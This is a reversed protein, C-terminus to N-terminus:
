LYDDCLRVFKDALWYIPYICLGLIIRWIPKIKDGRAKRWKYEKYLKIM